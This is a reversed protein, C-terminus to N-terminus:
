ARAHQAAHHHRDNAYGRAFPSGEQARHARGRWLSASCWGTVVRADANRKVKKPHIVGLAVLGYIPEVSDITRGGAIPSARRAASRRGGGELIKAIVETAARQHAHGGPGAGHHAHRGHRLRRQHCQHRRHPWLRLCRRRHAHLLGDDRHRRHRRQAPLRGRRGLTEIGVLLQPPVPFKATNRLIESLVGPAIKCGCGGGHSLSTLRPISTLAPEM